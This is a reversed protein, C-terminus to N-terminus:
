LAQKDKACSSTDHHHRVAGLARQIAVICAIAASCDIAVAGAEKSLSSSLSEAHAELERGHGSWFAHVRRCRVVHLNRAQQLMTM